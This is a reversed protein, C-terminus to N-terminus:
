TSANNGHAPLRLPALGEEIEARRPELWSPLKLSTGLADPPEDLGFGPPDTAIECLVGGPERFYISHFYQRDQVPTVQHGQRLLDARWAVQEEDHRTRWAVHHISGVAVRGPAEGSTELLDISAGLERDDSAYRDLGDVTGVHRLGLSDVLVSATPEAKRVLLTVGSFGRIAHETPVSGSGWGPRSVADPRAVLDLHLGDPDLFSLTQQGAKEALVAGVDKLREQWFGLSGNPVAFSITGAQGPGRRGRPAGVWPFFTLISGPSGVGDGYYLHYTGPDDFNVTRKVLRLGLLGAYFDLNRQPDGAIATVHHIGTTTFGM